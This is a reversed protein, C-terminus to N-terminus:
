VIWEEKRVSGGIAKFIWDSKSQIAKSIIAASPMQVRDHDVRAEKWNAHAGGVSDDLWTILRVLRDYCGSEISEQLGLGKKFDPVGLTSPQEDAITYTNGRKRKRKKYQSIGRIVGGERYLRIHMM